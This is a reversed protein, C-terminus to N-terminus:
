RSVSLDLGSFQDGRLANRGLNGFTYPAPPAFAATNFWQAPSPNAVGPNGVLNLREYNGANGTNAVDGSIVLTYPVGSTATFIGSLQWNGLTYDLIKNGVKVSGFRYVASAALVQPIDNGAVSRSTNLHWPDQVNCGEVGFFGDCGIDITKSWTYSVLYQLGRTLNQEVKMQLAHYSGKGVSWDYHAPSIYSYRTRDYISGPGPVQAVNGYTGVTLRSDHAGVYNAEVVINNRIARQIGFNWQESYANKAQPDRYYTSQGFPSAPPLTAVAGSLPNTGQVTPLGAPAQNLNQVQVQTQSPWDGGIGQVTQTIGAIEDYFMGFSARLSTRDGIRYALGLRPAFNATDTKWLKGSPSVVVNPQPLGGPICPAAGTQACSPVPRQLIYTGNNLDLEGIADTGLKRSGYIPWVGMEWRLGLNITLRKSAKWQDQVYAATTIQHNIEAVTARRSASDPVNLLFSALASGTGPAEPNSTQTAVFTPGAGTSLSYFRQWQLDYGVHFTHDGRIKAFDARVENISSLPQGGGTGEGGSIFGSISVSPLLCDASAGLQKFGCAFNSAFGTQQVVAAADGNLFKTVSVNDLANHGFTVNLVATPSFTHVYNGGWNQADTTGLNALGDFTSPSPGQRRQTSGSWRFWAIDKSSLYEDLRGNYQEQDKSNRLTSFTNFKGTVIPGPKPFVSQAFKVMNQDILNGPIINGPFPDRLYQGPKNPDARTTFPNFIAVNQDSLNGALETATPAIALGSFGTGTVQRFGEYSLFFFTKNRGNYHPLRVPGGTNAGFQNQRLSTLTASFPNRSDLMDNRLYEWAGGHFQNTGSKTVVNVTGGTIYGFQAEDNHSQVKFEQIDDIIPAVTFSSFVMESDNVGDLVFYNSRNQQGNISPIVVTGLPNSQAGSSNQATNVPTAGPTLALLQTFQRGNLPLENVFNTGIVTGLNATTTNIQVASAEVSVTQGVTGIQLTVDFTAAQNVGLAFPQEAIPAFGEKTVTLTYQGPLVNLFVYHGTDTSATSLKISTATNVLTISAGPVVAGSSDSVTGNVSATGQANVQTTFLLLLYGPLILATIRGFRYFSM